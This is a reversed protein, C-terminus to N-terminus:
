RWGRAPLEAVQVVDAYLVGLNVQYLLTGPFNDRKEPVAISGFDLVVWLKADGMSQAYTKSCAGHRVSNHSRNSNRLRISRSNRRYSLLTRGSFWRFMPQLPQIQVLLTVPWTVGGKRPPTNQMKVVRWYELFVSRVKVCM